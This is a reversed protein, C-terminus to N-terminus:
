LAPVPNFGSVARYKGGDYRLIQRQDVPMPPSLRAEARSLAGHYHISLDGPQGAAAELTWSSEIAYCDHEPSPTAPKAAPNAAGPRLLPQLRRQCDGAGNVNTGSLAMEVAPNRRVTGKDEDLEYLAMWTGCYGDWCGGYEVAFGQQQESLALARLTAKGSFGRWAFIGQQGSLRWAGNRREFQYAALAMPAAAARGDEKAPLLGAVMTLHEADDRLVLRPQVVVQMTGGSWGEHRAGGPPVAVSHVHHAAGESWDPFAQAALQGAEPTGAAAAASGALVLAPVSAAGALISSRRM